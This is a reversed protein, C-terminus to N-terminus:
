GLHIKLEKFWLSRRLKRLAKEKIQRIRERTLNMEEGIEDLTLSGTKNLGFYLNIVVLEKETLVSLANEIDSKLSESTLWHDPSPESTNPVLDILSNTEDNANVQSDLSVIRNSLEIALKIEEESMNLERALESTSAARSNDQEFETNAKTVKSIVAVRNMPLRILRSQEHLAQLISQRIWWVAYSIFKFGKTEDFREAAKMLGLNGENILDDLSLGLNQYQKAVSVVFRLNAKVLKDLAETDGERIRKTLEVEEAFSLLKVKGIDQLYKTLSPNNLDNNYKKNPM